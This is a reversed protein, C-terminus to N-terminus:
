RKDSHINEKRLIAKLIGLGIEKGGHFPISLQGSKLQHRMIIHSGTHGVVFWGDQKLMRLLESSKM